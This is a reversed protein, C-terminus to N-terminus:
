YLWGARETMIQLELLLTSAVIEYVFTWVTVITQSPKSGGDSGSNGM